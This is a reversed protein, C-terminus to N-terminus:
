RKKGHSITLHSKPGIHGSDGRESEVTTSKHAKSPHCFLPCTHLM